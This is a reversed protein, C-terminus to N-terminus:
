ITRVALDESTLGEVLLLADVCSSRLHDHIELLLRKSLGSLFWYGSREARLILASVWFVVVVLASPDNRSIM